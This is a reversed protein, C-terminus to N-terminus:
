CLRSPNIVRWNPGCSDPQYKKRDGVMKDPWIMAHWLCPEGRRCVGGEEAEEGKEVSQERKMMERKTWTGGKERRPGEEGILCRGMAYHQEVAGDGGGAVAVARSSGEAQGEGNHEGRCDPAM